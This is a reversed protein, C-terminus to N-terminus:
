PLVVEAVPLFSRDVREVFEKLLVAASPTVKRHVLTGNWTVAVSTEEGIAGSTLLLRARAVGKAKAQFRGPATRVVEIRATRKDVEAEVYKRRASEEMRDWGAPQPIKPDEEVFSELDLAEVWRSRAEGRVAARFVVRPPDPDRRVTDLLKVWDVAGFDFEHGLAPFEFLQADKAGFAKLREFAVRVNEVARPDDKAGQLDRIPLDVASELYRLNNQGGQIALRPAGIMPAAAAFLDPRRLALDWSMHGGRSEGTVLVRDPDVDFRLRAWRLAALTSARERASFRYGENEGAETPAVVIAGSSEAVDRWLGLVEPGRGRAGHIALVLPAAEGAKLTRPVYTVIETAEDAALVRLTVTQAREGWPAPVVPRMAVIADKWAALSVGPRKSLAEATAARDAPKAKECAARLDAVLAERSGGGAAPADGAAAPAATALIALLTPLRFFTVNL